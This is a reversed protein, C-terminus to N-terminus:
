SAFSGRPGSSAGGSEKTLEVCLLPPLLWASSLSFSFLSSRDELPSALGFGLSASMDSPLSRSSTLVVLPVSKSVVVPVAEPSPESRSLSPSLSRSRLPM